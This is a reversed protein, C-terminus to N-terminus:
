RQSTVTDPLRDRNLRLVSLNLLFAFTVWGLYIVLLGAALASIKAFALITAAATVWMLGADILAYDIRHMGFFLPSWVANTIIHILYLALPIFFAVPLPNAASGGAERWGLWGSVALLSYFLTWAPAFAWNPPIWVPKDITRYWEDPGYKAGTSAAALCVAAFAGLAILSENELM